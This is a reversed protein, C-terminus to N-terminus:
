GHSRNTSQDAEKTPGPKATDNKMGEMIAKLDMIGRAEALKESLLAQMTDQANPIVTPDEKLAIAQLGEFLLYDTDSEADHGCWILKKGVFGKLDSIDM